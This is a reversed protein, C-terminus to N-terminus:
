LGQASLVAPDSGLQHLYARRADTGAALTALHASQEATLRFQRYGHETLCQNVAAQQAAAANRRRLAAEYQARSAVDYMNTGVEAGHTGVPTVDNGGGQASGGAGAQSRSYDSSSGAGELNGSRANDGATAGRLECVAADARFDALTVNAKGWSTAAQPQAANTACAALAISASALLFAIRM